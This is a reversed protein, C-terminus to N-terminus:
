SGAHRSRRAILADLGDLIRELGFELAENRGGEVAAERTAAALAPFRDAHEQLLGGLAALLESEPEGGPGAARSQEAISRVHGALLVAADMREPGTLGTGDLAAVVRELWALERPGMLRPGVTADLLWPHAAFAATLRNSWDLLRGRWGSPEVPTGPGAPEGVAAEVMLAVLEAKGPLYRYLSMKTYDLLGAVRQMSVAGLGEADAIEIGAWAIRDLTLAPKPGRTPKPPPGWLM